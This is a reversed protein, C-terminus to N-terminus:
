HSVESGDACQEAARQDAERGNKEHGEIAADGAGVVVITEGEYADPDDLQYQVFPLDEGPVGLKRLNGQMGIGLVVHKAVVTAGSACDLRFGDADRVVEDAEEPSSPVILDVDQEALM